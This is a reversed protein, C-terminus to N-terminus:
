RGPLLWWGLAAAGFAFMALVQGVALWRWVASALRISTKRGQTPALLAMGCYFATLLPTGVTPTLPQGTRRQHRREFWVDFVLGVVVIYIAAIMITFAIGVQLPNSATPM